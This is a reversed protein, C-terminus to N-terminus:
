LIKPIIGTYAKKLIEEAKDQGYAESLLETISALIQEDTKNEYSKRYLDGVSAGFNDCILNFAIKKLENEGM